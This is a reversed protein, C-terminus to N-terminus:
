HSEIYLELIASEKSLLLIEKMSISYVGYTSYNGYYEDENYEGIKLSDLNKVINEKAYQIISSEEIKLLTLYPYLFNLLGSKINQFIDEESVENMNECTKEYDVNNKEKKSDFCNDDNVYSIKSYILISTTMPFKPMRLLTLQDNNNKKVSKNFDKMTLKKVM